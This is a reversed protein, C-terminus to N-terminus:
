VDDAVRQLLLSWSAKATTVGKWTAYAGTGGTNYVDGWTNGAGAAALGVPRDVITLPLTWVRDPVYAPAGSVRSETVQGVAVYVSGVGWGAPCQLLLTSGDALINKMNTRQLATVTGTTLEGTQAFRASSVPVPYVSGIVQFIGQPIGYAFSPIGGNGPEIVTNLDPRGPHKLWTLGNSPVTVTPSQGRIDTFDTTPTAIYYVPEDLPAEYDYGVWAGSVWLAPDGNRIPMAAAGSVTVRLLEGSTGSAGTVQVLVRSAPADVTATIVLAM